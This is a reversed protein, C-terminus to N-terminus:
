NKKPAQMAQRLQQIFALAAAQGESPHPDYAIPGLFHIAEAFKGENALQTALLMRPESDQPITGVAQRLGEVAVPPAREGSIRFSQYYAVLAYPDDPDTKNAALILRRAEEIRGSREVGKLDQAERLLIMGKRTRGRVDDPAIALLRDVTSRAAAYDEAAYEADALLRLAYPDAPFRATKARIGALWGSREEEKVFDRFAATERMLAAEGPGLTRLSFSARAPTEIPVARYPFSQKSLYQRVERDLVELDGFAEVAADQQPRGAGLLALYRRLQGAREQSFTLYHALLWSQGYFDAEAPFAAYTQGLLLRVPVWRSVELSYQRTDAPKGWAMKGGSITAATSAIEAFGEIYWAPYSAPAYQMMFHHAYEHFLIIEPASLVSEDGDRRPAVALPGQMNVTYFGAISKGTGRYVSRVQEVNDLLIIRVKTPPTDAPTGTAKRLLADLMELREAFRLLRADGGESYIRFHPTDAERWEASAASPLALALLLGALKLLAGMKMGEPMM